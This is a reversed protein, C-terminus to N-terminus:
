IIDNVVIYKISCNIAIEVVVTVLRTRAISLIECIEIHRTVCGEIKRDWQKTHTTIQDILSLIKIIMMHHKVKM